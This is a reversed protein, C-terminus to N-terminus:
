RVGEGHDTGRGMDGEVRQGPGPQDAEGRAEEDAATIQAAVWEAVPPAVANGLQKYRPSDKQEKGDARWRTWDDPFGQLREAERPTIRRVRWEADVAVVTARIATMNDSTNWTPSITGDVWTEYDEPNAARRAKTFVAVTAYGLKTGGSLCHSVGESVIPDQLPHFAMPVLHEGPETRFGGDNGGSNLTGVIPEVPILRGAAADSADPGGGAGVMNATLSEVVVRGPDPRGAARDAATAREARVQRHDRASGEAVPLLPRGRDAGPDFGAVVFVRRRRQPVGFFQADLVGWEVVVAGIDALAEVVRVLGDGGNGTILGTVNEAVTWRPYRGGTAEKMERTIRLAEYFLGSRNGDLGVQRGAQSVDQCPFGYTIVDVPELQHGSVTTVDGYRTVDPWHHALVQTCSPDNEVQWMCEWGARDCGVDFGGVGTFLSGYRMLHGM